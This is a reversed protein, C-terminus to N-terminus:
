PKASRAGGGGDPVLVPYAGYEPSPCYTHSRGAPPQDSQPSTPEFPRPLPRRLAPSPM